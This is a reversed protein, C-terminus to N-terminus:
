NWLAAFCSSRTLSFKPTKGKKGEGGGGGGGGGEREGGGGGGSSRSSPLSVRPVVLARSTLLLCTGWIKGSHSENRLLNM